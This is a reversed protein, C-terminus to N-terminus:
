SPNTKATNTFDLDAEDKAASAFLQLLVLIM